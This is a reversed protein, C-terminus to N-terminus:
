DLVFGRVLCEAEPNGIISINSNGTFIILHGRDVSKPNRYSKGKSINHAYFDGVCQLRIGGDVLLFEEGPAIKIKEGDNLTVQTFAAGAKLYSLSILPDEVEGPRAAFAAGTLLTGILLGTLFWLLGSRKM